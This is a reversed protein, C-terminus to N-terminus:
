GQYPAKETSTLVLLMLTLASGAFATVIGCLFGVLM